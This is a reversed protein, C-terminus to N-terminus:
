NIKNASIEQGNSYLKMQEVGNESTIFEIQEEETKLYFKNKEYPVIEFKLNAPNILYLKEANKEIILSFETGKIKYTGVFKNLEKKTLKIEEYEKTAFSPISEYNRKGDLLDMAFETLASLQSEAMANAMLYVGSKTDINLKFSATYGEQLGSHFWYKKNNKTEIGIGLGYYEHGFCTEKLKLISNPDLIKNQEYVGDNLLAILFKSMQSPSIYTLGGAPFPQSYLQEIPLAKNYVLKYPLAMEEIMEATPRTFNINSLGLPNLIYTNVYNGYSMGTQEELVLAAVVFGDNSYEYLEEPERIPKIKSVIEKLTKRHDNGWLPVFDASAPIGSQHSLLHRLTIPKSNNSFSPIPDSLYDNAPKDLDLIGKEVLQLISVALFPKATSGTSYIISTTTPTQLKANSYGYSETWILNGNKIVAISISPIGTEKRMKEIENSLTKEIFENTNQNKQANVKNYISFIIILFLITRKM